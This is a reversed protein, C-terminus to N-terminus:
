ASGCGFLEWSFFIGFFFFPADTLFADCGDHGEISLSESEDGLPDGLRGFILVYDIGTGVLTSPLFKANVM